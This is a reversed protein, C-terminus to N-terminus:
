LIEDEDSEVLLSVREFEKSKGKKTSTRRKISDEDSSAVV